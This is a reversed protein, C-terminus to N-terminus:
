RMLRLTDPLPEMEANWLYFGDKQIGAKLSVMDIGLAKAM